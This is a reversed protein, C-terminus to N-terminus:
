HPLPQPIPLALRPVTTKTTVFPVFSLHRVAPALGPGADQIRVIASHQEETPGSVEIKAAGGHPLVDLANILLNVVVQHIQEADILLEVQVTPLDLAIEVQQQRIM